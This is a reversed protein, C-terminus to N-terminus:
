HDKDIFAPLQGRCWQQTLAAAYPTANDQQFMLKNGFDSKQIELACISCIKHIMRTEYIRDRSNGTSFCKEFLCIILRYSKNSIEKKRRAMTEM